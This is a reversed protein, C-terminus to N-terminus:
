VTSVAAPADDKAADGQPACACFGVLVILLGLIEM